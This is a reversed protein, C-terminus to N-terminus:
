RGDAGGTVGPSGPEVNGSGPEGTSARGVPVCGLVMWFRPLLYLAAWGLFTGAVFRLIWKLAIADAPLFQGLRLSEPRGFYLAAPVVAIALRRWRMPWSDATASWAVPAVGALAMGCLAGGSWVFGKSLRATAGYPPWVGEPVQTLVWAQIGLSVAILGLGAGVAVGARGSPSLVRWRETVPTELARFAFAWLAGFAAGLVVDSVFHLGLYVRSVCVALTILVAGVWAWRRRVEGALFLWFAAAATAHGSPLSFTPSGIPPDKFTRVAEGFWYPRPSQLLMALCERMWLCIVVMIAVRGAVRPGSFCLLLAILALMPKGPGLDTVWQMVTGLGEVRQLGVVAKMEVAHLAAYPDPRLARGGSGDAGGTPAEGVPVGGIGEAGFAARPLLFLLLVLAVLVGRPLGWSVGAGAECGPSGDNRASM